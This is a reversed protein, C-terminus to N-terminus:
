RRILEPMPHSSVIAGVELPFGRMFDSAPLMKGGPRQLRLLRLLGHSTGIEIQGALSIGVRGPQSQGDASEALGLKVTLGGLEIRCSPWPYLGNVRSALEAAPRTFDLVGDDKVMRRCFTARTGEQEVFPLVGDALAALNRSVLPVCARSLKQELDLATDFREITVREMDAVPGADLERVIRMLSVGSESAGSVIASQIPSAGRLSPLISAHLNLTGLRPTNIFADRLIHGYAMVLAVDPQDDALEAQEVATLKLPQRVPFGNALAWQKIENPLVKQGRGVPRDPQTYIHTISVQASAKDRLWNLLPLAIPDSGMFVLKLQETKL